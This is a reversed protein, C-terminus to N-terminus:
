NCDRAKRDKHRVAIAFVIYAAGWAAAEQENGFRPITTVLDEPDKIPHERQFVEGDTDIFKMVLKWNDGEPLVELRARLYTTPARTYVESFEISMLVGNVRTFQFESSAIRTKKSFEM